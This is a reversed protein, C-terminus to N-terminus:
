TERRSPMPNRKAAVVFCGSTTLDDEPLDRFEAALAKRDVEARRRTTQDCVIEFGAIQM